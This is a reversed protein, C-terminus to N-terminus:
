ASEDLERTVEPHQLLAKIESAFLFRGARVTYYLPKKGLRDRAVLLSRRGQDWIAFAFMGDLRSVCDCGFEEYSHIIAETDSKSRFAHGKAALSPRQVQHNYIEGNFTIWISGDENAMPQHGAPSLDVISLRRHALVVRRDSSQYLGQDDPGRHVMADRMRCAIPREDTPAAAFNYIGAIGCMYKRQIYVRLSSLRPQRPLEREVRGGDQMRHPPIPHSSSCRWPRGAA